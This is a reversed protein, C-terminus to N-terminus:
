FSGDYVQLGTVRSLEDFGGNAGSGVEPIRLSPDPMEVRSRGMGHRDCGWVALALAVAMDSHGRSTRPTVVSSKGAAFRARLGRLESLLGEHPFLEISSTYIRGRLESFALTKTEATLGLTHVHVGRRALFDRVQPAFHQDAVVRARFHRAIEVVDGLLDDEIARREEFSSARQPVWARALGVRLRGPDGVDRGVLVVGTPDSAFGLDLGLMWGSADRRDLEGRDVVAEALRSADIYAGGSGVFEALIEGRYADPDRLRERELLEADLTPNVEMSSFRQAEADAIEGSRVRDFLEAFFGGEGFPTSSVVVRADAGFQLMSPTLARFLPEAAQNGDSDLM